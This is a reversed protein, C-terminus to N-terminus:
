MNYNAYYEEGQRRIRLTDVLKGDELYDMFMLEEDSSNCTIKFEKNSMRTIRM